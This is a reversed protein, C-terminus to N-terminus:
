HSRPTTGLNPETKDGRIPDIVPASRQMQARDLVEVATNAVLEENIRKEYMLEEIYEKILSVVQANNEVAVTSNVVEPVKSGLKYISIAMFAKAIENQLAIEGSLRNIILEREFAPLDRISKMLADSIATGGRSINDRQATTIPSSQYVVATLLPKVRITERSVEEKLGYGVQTQKLGTENTTVITEGTVRKIYDAASDPTAFWNYLGFLGFAKTSAAKEAATAGPATAPSVPNGSQVALKFGARMVDGSLKITPQNTGGAKSTGDSAPWAIGNKGANAEVKKQAQVVDNRSYSAEAKWDSVRAAQKFNDWVAGAGGGNAIITEEMAKCDLRAANASAQARLLGNQMIDYLTPNARQILIAPLSAVAAQANAVMANLYDDAATRVDSLLKNVSNSISFKGCSYSWSVDGSATLPVANYSTWAPQSIPAAGGMEYYWGSQASATGSLALAAFLSVAVFATRTTRIAGLPAKVTLLSCFQM